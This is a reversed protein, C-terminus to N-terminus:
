SPPPASSVEVDDFVVDYTGSSKDGLEARYAGETGLSETRNLNPVADGDVAVEIRSQDGNVVVHLVLTHWVGVAPAV